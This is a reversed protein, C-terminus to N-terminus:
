TVFWHRVPPYVFVVTEDLQKNQCASRDFCEWGLSAENRAKEEPALTVKSNFYWESNKRHSSLSTHRLFFYFKLIHFHFTPHTTVHIMKCSTSCILILSFLVLYCKKAAVFVTWQLLLPSLPLSTLSQLRCCCFLFAGICNNHPVYYRWPELVILSFLTFFFSHVMFCSRHHYKDRHFM